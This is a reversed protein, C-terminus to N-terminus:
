THFNGEVLNRVVIWPIYESCDDSLWLYIKKKRGREDMSNNKNDLKDKIFGMSHQDKWIILMLSNTSNDNIRDPLFFFFIIFNSFPPLFLLPHHHHHHYPIPTTSSSLPSSLFSYSHNIIIIFIIIIITITIIIILLLLLHLFLFLESTSFFFSIFYLLWM